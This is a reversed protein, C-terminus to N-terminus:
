LASAMGEEMGNQGILGNNSEARKAQHPKKENEMRWSIIQGM